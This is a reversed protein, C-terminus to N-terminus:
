FRRVPSGMKPTSSRGTGDLSTGPSAVDGVCGNGTFGGGSARTVGNVCFSSVVIESAERRCHSSSNALTLLPPM